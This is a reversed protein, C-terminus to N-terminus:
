NCVSHWPPIMGWMMPLITREGSLAEPCILKKSILVPSYMTPSFNCSLKIKNESHCEKLEAELFEKSSPNKYCCAKCLIEPSLTSCILLTTLMKILLGFFIAYEVNFLKNIFRQFVNGIISCIYYRYTMLFIKFRTDELNM